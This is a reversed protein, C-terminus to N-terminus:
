IHILSLQQMAWTATALSGPLRETVPIVSGGDATSASGISDRICM